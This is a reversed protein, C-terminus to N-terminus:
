ASWEELAASGPDLLNQSSNMPPPLSHRIKRAPQRTFHCSANNVKVSVPRIIRQLVFPSRVVPLLSDEAEHDPGVLHLAHDCQSIVPWGTAFLRRPVLMIRRIHREMEVVRAFRQAPQQLLRRRLKGISDGD